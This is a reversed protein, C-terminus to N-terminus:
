NGISTPLAILQNKNLFLQKLNQLAYLPEISILENDRLDLYELATLKSFYSDLRSFKCFRMKLTKLNSLQSISEPFVSFSHASLDLYTLSTIQGIEEPIKSFDNSHM